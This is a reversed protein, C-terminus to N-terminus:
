IGVLMSPLREGSIGPSVWSGYRRDSRDYRSDDTYASRGVAKADVEWVVRPKETRM